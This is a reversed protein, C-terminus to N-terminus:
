YRGTTNDLAAPEEKNLVLFFALPPAPPPPLSSFFTKNDNWDLLFKISFHIPIGKQPM